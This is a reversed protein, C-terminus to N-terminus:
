SVGGKAEWGLRCLEKNDKMSGNYDVAKTCGVTDWWTDYDLVPECDAIRVLCLFDPEMEHVIGGVKNRCSKEDIKVFYCYFPNLTNDVDFDQEAKVDAFPIVKYKDNM